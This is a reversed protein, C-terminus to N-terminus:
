EKSTKKDGKYNRYKGAEMQDLSLNGKRQQTKKLEGGGTKTETEGQSRRAGNLQQMAQTAKGLTQPPQAVKDWGQVGRGFKEYGGTGERAKYLDRSRGTLTAAQAPGSNCCKVLTTIPKSYGM